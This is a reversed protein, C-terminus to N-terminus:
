RDFFFPPLKLAIEGLHCTVGFRFWSLGHAVRSVVVSGYHTKDVHNYKLKEFLILIEDRLDNLQLKFCISMLGHYIVGMFRTLCKVYVMKRLSRILVKYWSKFIWM